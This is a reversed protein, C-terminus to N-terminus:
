THFYMDQCIHMMTKIPQLEGSGIDHMLNNVILMSMVFFQYRHFLRSCFKVSVLNLFYSLM